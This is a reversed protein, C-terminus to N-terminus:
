VPFNGLCALQSGEFWQLPFEGDKAKQNATEKEKKAQLAEDQEKDGAIALM